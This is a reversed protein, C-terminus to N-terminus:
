NPLMPYRLKDHIESLQTGIIDRELIEGVERSRSEMEEVSALSPAVWVDESPNLKPLASSIERADAKDNIEFLSEDLKEHSSPSSDYVPEAAHAEVEDLHEVNSVTEHDSEVDSSLSSSAAKGENDGELVSEETMSSVNSHKNESSENSEGDIPEEEIEKLKGDRESKDSSSSESVTDHAISSKREANSEDLADSRKSTERETDSETGDLGEPIFFPKFRSARPESRMEEMYVVPAGLTFSEHRRYLANRRFDQNMFGTITSTGASASANINSSNSDAHNSVNANHCAPTPSNQETHEFPIDFPNRNAPLLISPASGPVDEEYPLDFPNMKPAIVPQIQLQSSDMGELDILDRELLKRVAKRRAIVHELRTNKEIESSGVSLLNKQDDATWAVVKRAKEAEEEKETEEGVSANDSNLDPESDSFDKSELGSQVLDSELLPHIEDLTPIIESESASDDSEGSESEDVPNHERVWEVPQARTRNFQNAGNHNEPINPEGYTLVIALLITTFLITPSSALLLNFLSPLYKYIMLLSFITFLLFPHQFASRLISRIKM